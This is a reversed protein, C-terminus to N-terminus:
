NVAAIRTSITGKERQWGVSPILAQTLQSNYPYGRFRFNRGGLSAPVSLCCVGGYEIRAPCVVAYGNRAEDAIHARRSYLVGRWHKSRGPTVIFAPM